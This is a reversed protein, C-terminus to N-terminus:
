MSNICANIQERIKPIQNHGPALEEYEKLRDRLISLREDKSLRMFEQEAKSKPM